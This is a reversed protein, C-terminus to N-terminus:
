QHLMIMSRADVCFSGHLDTRWSIKVNHSGPSLRNTQWNFAHAGLEGSGIAPVVGPAQQVGDVLLRLYGTDSPDGSLSLSGSFMVAVSANGTGGLMFNRKMQPMTSFSASTTCRHLIEDRGDFKTVPGSHNVGTALAIAASALAAVVFAGLVVVAKRRRSNM